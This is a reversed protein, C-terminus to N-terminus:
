RGISTNPQRPCITGSCTIAAHPEGIHPIFWAPTRGSPFGYALINKKLPPIPAPHPSVSLM